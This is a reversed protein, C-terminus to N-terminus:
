FTNALKVPEIGCRSWALNSIIYNMWMIISRILALCLLRKGTPSSFLILHSLKEMPM